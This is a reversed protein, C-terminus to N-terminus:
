PLPGFDLTWLGFDFPGCDQSPVKSRPRQVKSVISVWVAPFIGLFASLALWGTAPALPIGHWRYPILLLWYLMSLYHAIGAVYGIRFSEGGTKGIAAAIMLGPAIWALGSINIGPFAAGAAAKLFDRRDTNTSQQNM